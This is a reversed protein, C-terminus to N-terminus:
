TARSRPEPVCALPGAAALLQAPAPGAARAVRSFGAARALAVLRDSAAAVACARLAGAADPPLAELVRALAGGSSVLLVAPAPLACLSAVARPDPAIDVRDYVDARLVSAGRAALADALLARGAPATVLGVETGAIDRLVPMDLMGESDMRAPVAVRAVGARRLAAATGAGVACCAALDGPLPHLAAACRVAAPSTFVVRPAALARLLARRAADDDRPRVAWPSLAVVGAGHRAAARRVAGHDGRPRLSIVYWEPTPGRAQM